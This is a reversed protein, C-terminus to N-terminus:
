RVSESISTHEKTTVFALLLPVWFYRLYVHPLFFCFLMLALISNGVVLAEHPYKKSLKLCNRFLLGFYGIFALVLILGGEVWLLLYVLHVDLGIGGFNFDPRLPTQRLGHGFFLGGNREQILKLARYNLEMRTLASQVMESQPALAQEQPNQSTPAQEQPVYVTKLFIRSSVKEVIFPSFYSLAVCLGAFLSFILAFRSVTEKIAQRLPNNKWFVMLLLNFFIVSSLVIIGSFSASLFLCPLLTIVGVYGIKQWFGKETAVLYIYFPLTIVLVVAFSNANGYTGLARNACYFFERLPSFFNVPSMLLTLLMPFLYGLAIFRIATRLKNVSLFFFALLPFGIFIFAYQSAGSLLSPWRINTKYLLPAIIGSLLCLFIIISGLILMDRCQRDVKLLAHNKIFFIAVFAFASVLFLDVLSFSTGKSFDFGGYRIYFYPATLFALLIVFNISNEKKNSTYTKMM